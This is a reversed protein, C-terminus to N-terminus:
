KRLMNRFRKRAESMVATVPRRKRQAEPTTYRLGEDCSLDVRLHHEEIQDYEDDDFLALCDKDLQITLRCMDFALKSVQCRVDTTSNISQWHVFESDLDRQRPAARM